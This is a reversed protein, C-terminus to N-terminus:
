QLNGPMGAAVGQMLKRAKNPRHVLKQERYFARLVGEETEQLGVSANFSRCYVLFDDENLTLLGVDRAFRPVERGGAMLEAGVLSSAADTRLAKFKAFHAVYEKYSMHALQEKQAEEASADRGKNPGRDQIPGPSGGEQREDGGGTPAESRQCEIM